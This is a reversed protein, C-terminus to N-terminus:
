EGNNNFIVEDIPYNNNQYEYMPYRDHAQLERLATMLDEFSDNIILETDDMWTLVTENEHNIHVRIIHDFNILEPEGSILVQHFLAM